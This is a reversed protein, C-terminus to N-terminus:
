KMCISCDFIGLIKVIYLKIPSAHVIQMCCVSVILNAARLLAAMGCTTFRCLRDCGMRGLVYVVCYATATQTM